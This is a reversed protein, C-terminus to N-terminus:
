SSRDYRESARQDPLLLTFIEGKGHHCDGFIAEQFQILSSFEATIIACLTSFEENRDVVYCIKVISIPLNVPKQM